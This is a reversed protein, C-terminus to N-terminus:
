INRPYHRDSQHVTGHGTDYTVNVTANLMYIQGNQLGTTRGHKMVPLGVTVGQAVTSSPTGYSGVPTTKDVTGTSCLAIAADIVNYAGRSFVIPEFEALTGIADRPNQPRWRLPRARVPDGTFARNEDAYVHNNSLAYVQGNIKTM